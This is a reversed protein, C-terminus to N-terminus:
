LIIWEHEPDNKPILTRGVGALMWLYYLEYGPAAAVPHYGKPIIVTDNEELTIAEDITRDDTYIRQFGFGGSKNLKFFYIEELKCEHPPNHIEHKHPPYSSWNGPPNFTEGIVLHRAETRSDIIDRVERTWNKKGRTNCINNKPTILTIKGKDEWPAYCLAIECETEAKIKYENNGPIYLAYAKGDFVNKREGISNFTEPGAVISCKGGLIILGLEKEQLSENFTDGKNLKLVSFGLLNIGEIKNTDIIRNIGSKIENKFHLKM